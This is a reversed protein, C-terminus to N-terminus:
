QKRYLGLNRSITGTNTVTGAVTWIASDSISITGMNPVTGTATWIANDYVTITAAAISAKVEYNSTWTTDEGTVEITGYYSVNGNSTWTAGDSVILKKTKNSNNAVQAITNQEWITGAGTITGGGYLYAYVNTRWFTGGSITLYGTANVTINYTGATDFTAIWTSANVCLTCM